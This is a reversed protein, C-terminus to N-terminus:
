TLTTDTDFKKYIYTGQGEKWGYKTMINSAVAARHVCAILYKLFVHICM